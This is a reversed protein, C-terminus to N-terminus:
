FLTMQAEEIKKALEKAEDTEAKARRKAEKEAEKLAMAEAEAKQVDETSVEILANKSLEKAKKEAEKRKREAEGAERKADAEIEDATRYTAGEKENEMYHVLLLYALDDPMAVCNGDRKMKEAVSKAFNYAGKFTKGEAKRKEEQEPTAHKTWYASFYDEMTREMLEKMEPTLEM